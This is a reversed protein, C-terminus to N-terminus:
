FLLHLIETSVAVSIVFSALEIMKNSFLKVIRSCPKASPRVTKPLIKFYIFIVALEFKPLTNLTKTALAKRGNKGISDM